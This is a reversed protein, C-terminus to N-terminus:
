PSRPPPSPRSTSTRWRRTPRSRPTASGTAHGPRTAFGEAELLVELFQEYPWSEERASAATQELRELIRPTKLKSLLYPLREGVAPTPKKPSM